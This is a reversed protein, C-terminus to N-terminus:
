TTDSEKAVGHVTAQWSQLKQGHSKGSLFVPTLQWKEGGPSRTLGPILGVDGADTPPKGVVTPLGDCAWVCIRM